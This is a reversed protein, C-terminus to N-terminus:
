QNGGGGVRNQEDQSASTRKRQPINNQNKGFRYSFGLTVQRNDWQSKIKADINEFKTYGSFRQIWFPDRLNLRITGQNKLIQKAGGLSFVGMPEAVIIGSELSKSRYFGSIEASWGKKFKFQNSANIMFASYEVNLPANNVIGNFYNNFVNGFISLTYVKSLPQNYSISMGINRRTAINKKTQFTVQTADDQVLVDNIIDTTNTYNVSTNLRGKYNHSLEVNHSFQPTLFPNGERYTYQDLFYQFPNMDQYNPREIRRGYSLGFNNSKNAAYSIYATPFLQTYNRDFSQGNKVQKGKSITNELRLGFQVGVKKMQKNANIYAANINEKYIFHNSRSDIDWASAIKNFHTYQADNDTEVYSAKIGAEIKAGKKLPHVYDMKGTYINIKSPLAGRLFYPDGSVGGNADFTYNDSSQNSKTTYNVYDLDATLEKGTKSDYVHRFNLNGSYNSWYDTGDNIATNTSTTTGGGNMINSRSISENRRENYAGSLVIGVTTKPTAFLDLGAKLSTPQGKFKGDNTQDFISTLAGTSKDRFNRKISIDNFGSFYSVNANFFVNVKGKRSNINFSNSTKPYVGQTYNLGVSGNFGKTQTRKTKINIVGSNGSADFKASPQSMIEIQDLQSAPMNRLLNALDQGGLYTQKGDMLIIVGQKGKLSIIGDRDVSIGPSKELVELATSGANTVAAEVNVVTKDIKNEILPRTATVQVTGLNKDAVEMSMAPVSFASETETLEFPKSFNNKFGVMTVKVIFKGAPLREVDFEGSKTSIASKVLASDKARLIAITAGDVPKGDASTVSGHVKGIKNQASAQLSLFSLFLVLVLLPSVKRM